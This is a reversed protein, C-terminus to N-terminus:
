DGDTQGADRGVHVASGSGGNEGRRPQDGPVSDRDVGPFDRLGGRLKRGGRVARVGPDRKGGREDGREWAASNEPQARYEVFDPVVDPVIAIDSFGFVAGSTFHVFGIAAGSGGAHHEASSSYGGCGGPGAGADRVGAGGGCNAGAGGYDGRWGNR